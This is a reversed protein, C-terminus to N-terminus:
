PLNADIPEDLNFHVELKAVTSQIDDIIVELASTFETYYPKDYTVLLQQLGGIANRLDISLARIEDAQFKPKEEREVQELYEECVRKAVYSSNRVYNLTHTHNDGLVSRWFKTSLSGGTAISKDGIYLKQGAKIKAITKLDVRLQYLPRDCIGGDMTMHGKLPKSVNKLVLSAVTLAEM